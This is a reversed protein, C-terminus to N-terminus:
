GRAARVERETLGTEARRKDTQLATNHPKTVISDVPVRHDFERWYM